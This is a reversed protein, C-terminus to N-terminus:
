VAPIGPQRKSVAKVAEGDSMSDRVEQMANKLEELQNVAARRSEAPFKEMVSHHLSILTSVFEAALIKGAPTFEVILVRRDHSAETRLILGKAVLGDVIRTIRSKALALKDAIETTTRCGELEIATLCRSEPISLGYNQALKEERDHCCETLSKLLSYLRYAEKKLASIM